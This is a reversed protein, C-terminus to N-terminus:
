ENLLTLQVQLDVLSDGEYLYECKFSYRNKNEFLLTDSYGFAEVVQNPFKKYKRWYDLVQMYFVWTFVEEDETLDYEKSKTRDIINPYKPFGQSFVWREGNDFNIYNTSSSSKNDVWLSNLTDIANDRVHEVRLNFIRSKRELYQKLHLEAEKNYVGAFYRFKVKSVKYFDGQKQAFM